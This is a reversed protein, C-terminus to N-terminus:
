ARGEEKVGVLRAVAMTIARAKSPSSARSVKGEARVEVTCQGGRITLSCDRSVTDLVRFADREDILPRFGSRPIWRRGSLIFRGPALRRGMVRALENTLLDDTM